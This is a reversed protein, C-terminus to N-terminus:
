PTRGSLQSVGAIPQNQDYIECLKKLWEDCV